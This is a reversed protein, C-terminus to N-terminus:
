LSQHMFIRQMRSVAAMLLVKGLTVQGSLMADNLGALHDGLVKVLISQIDMHFLIAGDRVYCVALSLM